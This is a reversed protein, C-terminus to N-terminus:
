RGAWESYRQHLRAVAAYVTSLPGDNILVDHARAWRAARSTQARLMADVEVSTAGDRQMLRSRQLSEPVDVLLVRRVWDYDGSEVFLPVALLVYNGRAADAQERMRARIRPHLIAELELRQAPEAFVIRRMAQRDLTGDATLVDGGWRAAIELLAESGPKVVDRAVLDADVIEVGLAEFSRTVTSKGSAVGGTVVIPKASM